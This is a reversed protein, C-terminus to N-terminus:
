IHILSLYINAENKIHNFNTANIDNFKDINLNVRNIFEENEIPTIRKEGHIDILIPDSFEATWCVDPNNFKYEMALFNNAMCWTRTYLNKYEKDDILKMGQNTFKTMNKITNCSGKINTTLRENILEDLGKFNLSTDDEDMNHLVDVISNNKIIRKAAVIGSTDITPPFKFSIVLTDVQKDM